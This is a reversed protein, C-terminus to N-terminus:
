RGGQPFVAYASVGQGRAGGISQIIYLLGATNACDTEYQRGDDAAVKLQRFFPSQGAACAYDERAHVQPYASGAPADQALVRVVDAVPFWWQDDHYTKRIKTGTVGAINKADFTMQQEM